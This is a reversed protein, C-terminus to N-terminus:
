SVGLEYKKALKIIAHKTYRMAQIILVGRGDELDRRSLIKVGGIYDLDELISNLAEDDGYVNLIM